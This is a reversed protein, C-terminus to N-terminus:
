MYRGYRDRMRREGMMEDDRLPREDTYGGYRREGYMEGGSLEELCSMLKGGYHLVKEVLGSMRDVKDDTIQIMKM